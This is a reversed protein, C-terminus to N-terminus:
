VGGTVWKGPHDNQICNIITFINEFIEKKLTKLRTTGVEGRREKVGWGKLQKFFVWNLNLQPEFHIMM